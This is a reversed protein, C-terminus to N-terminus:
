KREPTKECLKVAKERIEVLDKPLKSYGYWKPSDDNLHFVSHSAKMDDDVALRKV